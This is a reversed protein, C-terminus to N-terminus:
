VLMCLPCALAALSPCVEGASGEPVAQARLRGQPAGPGRCPDAGPPLRVFQPCGGPVQVPVSCLPLTVGSRCPEVASLTNLDVWSTDRAPIGEM